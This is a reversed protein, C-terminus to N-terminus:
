AAKDNRTAKRYITNSVYKAKGNKVLDAAVNRKVRQITGGLLEVNVSASYNGHGRFHGRQETTPRKQTRKVKAKPANPDANVDVVTGTQEEKLLDWASKKKVHVIGAARDAERKAAKTEKVKAINAEATQKKKLDRAARNAIKSKHGM